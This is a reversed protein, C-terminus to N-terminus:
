ARNVVSGLQGPLTLRLIHGFTREDMWLTKRIQVFNPMYYLNIVAVRRYAVHGWGLDLDRLDLTAIELNIEGTISASLSHHHGHHLSICLILHVLLVTFLILNVSHFHLLSSIESRHTTPSKYRLQM